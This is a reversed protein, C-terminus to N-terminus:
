AASKSKAIPKEETLEIAGSEHEVVIIKRKTRVMKSIAGQTLGVADALDSQSHLQLYAELATKKM